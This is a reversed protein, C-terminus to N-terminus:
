DRKGKEGLFRGKIEGQLSFPSLNIKISMTGTKFTKFPQTGKKARLSPFDM